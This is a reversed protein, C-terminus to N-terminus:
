ASGRASGKRHLGQNGGLKDRQDSVLARALEGAGAAQRNLSRHRKRIRLM